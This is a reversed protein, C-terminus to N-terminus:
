TNWRGFNYDESRTYYPLKGGLGCKSQPSRYPYKIILYGFQHAYLIYYSPM